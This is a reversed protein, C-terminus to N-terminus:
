ISLKIVFSSHVRQQDFDTRVGPLPGGVESVIEFYLYGSTYFNTRNCLNLTKLPFDHLEETFRQNSNQEEKRKM